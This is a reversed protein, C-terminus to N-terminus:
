GQIVRCRTNSEVEKATSPWEDNTLKMEWLKNEVFCSSVEIVISWKPNKSLLTTYSILKIILREQFQGKQKKIYLVNWSYSSKSKKVKLKLKVWQLKKKM